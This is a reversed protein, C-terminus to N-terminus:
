ANTPLDMITAATNATSFKVNMTGQNMSDLSSTEQGNWFTKLAKRFQPNSATYIFPNACSNVFALVVFTQYVNSFLFSQELIGINFLFFGIQDATWCFIFTLVVVLLMKLVRQHARLMISERRTKEDQRSGTHHMLAEAQTHLCQLTKVHTAVMIVMPIFYELSFIFIGICTQMLPGGLNYTCGGSEHSRFAAFYTFANTWFSALWVMSLIIKSRSKSYMLRNRLPYVVALCQELSMMALTYVSSVISIWMLNNPYIVRCYLEGLLSNPTRAIAPIPFLFASTCLDAVALGRILRNMSSYKRIKVTYIFIVVSNGILGM